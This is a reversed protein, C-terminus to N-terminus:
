VEEKMELAFTSGFYMNSEKLYLKAGISNSLSKSLFLGLGMGKKKTSYFLEFIKEKKSNNIGPGNDSVTIIIPRSSNKEYHVGVTIIRHSKRFYILQEAANIILNILIHLIRIPYGSATSVENTFNIRLNVNNEELYKTLDDKITNLL